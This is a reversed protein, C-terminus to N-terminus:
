GGAGTESPTREDDGGGQGPPLPVEFAIRLGGGPPTTFQVSGGAQVIRERIGLMGWRPRAAVDDLWRLDMGRGDDEIYGAVLDPAFSLRMTVKSAHAHRVVNTAAEQFVRYVANEIDEPVGADAGEVHLAFLLGSSQLVHQGTARVAEVLGLDDLVAPRLRRVLRNIGDLTRQVLTKARELNAREQAANGDPLTELALLLATLEQATEDHIERAIRKREEAEAEFLHRLMRNKREQEVRLQDYLLTREVVSQVQGALLAFTPLQYRLVDPGADALGLWLAGQVVDGVAIRQVVFAQVEPADEVLVGRAALEAVAVQGSPGIAAELLPRLAGDARLTVGAAAVCDDPLAEGRLHLLACLVPPNGAIGQVLSPLLHALGPLPARPTAAPTALPTRHEPAAALPRAKLEQLSRALVAFEDGGSLGPGGGGDGGISTATQVLQQMPRLVRRALMVYFGVFCGFILSVLATSTLVTERMPAYLERTGERVTVVWDLGPLPAVTTVENERVTEHAQGEKHCSHCPMQATAGIRVKDTFYTGHVVSRFREGAQTSYLAVGSSDLLQLRSQDNVAFHEFMAVFAADDPRVHMVGIVGGEGVKRSRVLLIRHRGDKGKWVDSAVLKDQKEARRLAPLLVEVKAFGGPGIDQGVLQRRHDFVAIGDVCGKIGRAHRLAAEIAKPDGNAAVVGDLARDLLRSKADMKQDIAGAVSRAFLLNHHLSHDIARRFSWAEFAVTAAIVIASLLLFYGFFRKHLM